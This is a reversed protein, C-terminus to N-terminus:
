VVVLLNVILVKTNIGDHGLERIFEKWAGQFHDSNPDTLSGMDAYPDRTYFCSPTAM